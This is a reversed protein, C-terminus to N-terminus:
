RPLLFISATGVMFSLVILRIMFAHWLISSLFSLAHYAFVMCSRWGFSKLGAGDGIRRGIQGIQWVNAAQAVPLHSLNCPFFCLVIGLWSPQLLCICLFFSNIPLGSGSESILNYCVNHISCSFCNMLGRHCIDYGYGTGWGCAEASPLTSNM